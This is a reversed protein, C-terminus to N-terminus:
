YARRGAGDCLAGDPLSFEGAGVPIVGIGLIRSNGRSRKVETSLRGHSILTATADHGTAWEIAVALQSQFEPLSWTRADHGSATYYVRGKGQARVWTWPMPAQGAVPREALIIRDSTTARMVYTEDWSQFAQVGHMAPHGPQLIHTSFIAADHSVFRGGFLTDFRPDKVAMIISCHLAVFAKGGNVFALIADSPGPPLSDLNNYLFLADYGSLHAPAIDALNETYDLRIGRTAFFPALM